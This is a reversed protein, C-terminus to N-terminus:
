DTETEFEPERGTRIECNLTDSVENEMSPAPLRGRFRAAPAVTLRRTFYLGVPAVSELESILM